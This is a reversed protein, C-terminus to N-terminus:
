ASQPSVTPLRGANRNYGDLDDELMVYNNMNVISQRVVASTNMPMTQTLKLVRLVITHGANCLARGGRAICHGIGPLSRLITRCPPVAMEGHLGPSYSGM